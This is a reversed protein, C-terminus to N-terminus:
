QNEFRLLDLRKGLVKFKIQNNVHIYRDSILIYIKDIHM